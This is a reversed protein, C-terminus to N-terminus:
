EDSPGFEILLAALQNKGLGQLRRNPHIGLHDMLKGALTPGIGPQARLFDRVRMGAIVHDDPYMKFRTLVSYGSIQASKLQQRIRAREARVAIAKDLALEMEDDTLNALANM